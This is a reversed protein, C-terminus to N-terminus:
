TKIQLAILRVRISIGPKARARWVREVGEGEGTGEERGGCGGAM